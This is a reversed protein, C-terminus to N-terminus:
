FTHPVTGQEEKYDFFIWKGQEEAALGFSLPSSRISDCLSLTHPRHNAACM